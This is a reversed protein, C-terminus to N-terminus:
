QVLREATTTGTTEQFEVGNIDYFKADFTGTYSNGDLSVTNLETINLTGQFTNTTDYLWAVHTTLDITKGQRTWVGVCLAGTAPPLNGLENETGSANWSDYGELFLTGDSATHVDHWLGVISNSKANAASNPSNRALMAAPLTTPAVRKGFNKSLLPNCALAPMSSAAFAALALAAAIPLKM